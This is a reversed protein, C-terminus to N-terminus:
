NSPKQEVHRITAVGNKDVVCSEHEVKQQVRLLRDSQDGAICFEARLPPTGYYQGDDFPCDFIAPDPAACSMGVPPDRRTPHTFGACHMMEHILTQAIETSGEPFLNEFNVLIRSGGVHSSANVDPDNSRGHSIVRRYVKVLRERENDNLNPCSSVRSFAFRHRERLMGVQAPTIDEDFTFNDAVLEQPVSKNAVVLPVTQLLLSSSTM